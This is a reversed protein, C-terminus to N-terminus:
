LYESILMNLENPLGCEELFASIKEQKELYNNLYEICMDSDLLYIKSLKEDPSNEYRLNIDTLLNDVNELFHEAKDKSLDFLNYSLKGYYGEYYPSIDM